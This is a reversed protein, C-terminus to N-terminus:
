FPFSHHSSQSLSAVAHHAAGRIGADLHTHARDIVLHKTILPHCGAYLQSRVAAVFVDVSSLVGTLFVGHPNIFATVTCLATGLHKGAERLLNTAVPDANHAAQIFLDVNAEPNGLEHWRQALRNSTLVTALCGTNGCPCPHNGYSAHRVHSIDGAAGTAGRHIAGDIIVGVGIGSGAKVTISHRLEEHATHEGLAILDTDNEVLVPVKFRETLWARVPFDNWGPMRSAAEVTGHDHNIPAPLGICIGIVKKELKLAELRKEWLTSLFELVEVPGQTDLHVEAVQIDILNAAADALAYRVHSTGFDAVLYTSTNTQIQLIRGRRGGTSSAHGVETLVELDLLEQVHLSITSPALNLERALDARTVAEGASILHIIADNVHHPDHLYM